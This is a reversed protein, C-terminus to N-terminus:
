REFTLTLTAQGGVEVGTGLLGIQGKANVGIAASVSRLTMGSVSKASSPLIDHLAEVFEELNKRLTEVPVELQRGGQALEVDDSRAGTYMTITPGAPM